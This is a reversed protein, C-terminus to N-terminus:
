RDSHGETGSIRRGAPGSGGDPLDGVIAELVDMPTAIGRITGHENVIVAFHVPSSKFHRLLELIDTGEDVYLAPSALRELDGGDEMLHALVDRARIVGVLDGLGGRALPFRSHDGRRLRKMLRDRPESVDLWEIKDRPTMISRVPRESLEFASRVIKREAAEFLPQSGAQAVLAAVDAQDPAPGDRRTGLLRLVADATRARLDRRKALARQRNRQALQNFTEILVSFGIAAYLYGKPIELNFGELVLSFGIMLLFGLCLVVVTPHASVFDMLPRSAVMMVGVALVVAIVMLELDDVMGVATIVSDLSFVMDLIVIQLIAAWFGAHMTPGAREDQGGELRQHLEITAKFLLFVGGALMVLGRGSFDVGLVNVLPATLTALWSISALLVLRMLLALALGVLRARNRQAAPLRDTLIAIFVLNDIGLVIELAILTLLGIWAAPDVIWEM